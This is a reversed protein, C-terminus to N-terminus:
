TTWDSLVTHVVTLADGSVREAIPLGGPVVLSCRRRRTASCSNPAWFGALYIEDRWQPPKECVGCRGTRVRRSGSSPSGMTKRSTSCGSPRWWNRATLWPRGGRRATTRLQAIIREASPPPPSDADATLVQVLHPRISVPTDEGDFLVVLRAGRRDV